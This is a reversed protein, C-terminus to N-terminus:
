RTTQLARGGKSPSLDTFFLWTDYENPDRFPMYPASWVVEDDLRADLQVMTMRVLGYKWISHSLDEGHVEILLLLDPNTGNAAFAFIAGDQLGSKPDQYRHIPRTLLRMKEQTGLPPDSITVSFRKALGKMQLLRGFGAAVAEEMDALRRLELGPKTASWRHGDRWEAELLGESLSTFCYFWRDPRRYLEVKQLAAPRGGSGWCWLTADHIERPQDSYRFVPGPLLALAVRADDSRCVRTAEACLRM